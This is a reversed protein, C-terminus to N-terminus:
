TGYIPGEADKQSSCKKFWKPQIPPPIDNLCCLTYFFPLIWGCPDNFNLSEQLLLIHTGQNKGEEWGHPNDPKKHSKENRGDQQDGAAM